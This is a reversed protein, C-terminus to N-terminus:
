SFLTLRSCVTTPMLAQTMCEFSSINPGSANLKLGARQIFLLSREAYKSLYKKETLLERDWEVSRVQSLRELWGGLLKSHAGPRTNPLVDTHKLHGLYNGL